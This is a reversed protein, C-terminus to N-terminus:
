RESEDYAPPPAYPPIAPAWAPVAYTRSEIGKTAATVRTYGLVHLVTEEPGGMELPYGSAFTVTPFDAANWTLDKETLTIPADGFIRAPSLMNQAFASPHRPTQAMNFITNRVEWLPEAYRPEEFKGQARALFIGLGREAALGAQLMAADLRRRPEPCLAAALAGLAGARRRQVASGTWIQWTYWDRRLILSTLLANDDSDARVSTSYSQYLLANAATLDLDNGAADFSLRQNTNPEVSYTAEQIFEGVTQEASKRALVDRSALTNELALSVVSPVDFASATGIPRDSRPGWTLARGLPIRFIPLRITLTSETCITTPGAETYGLLPLTPSEITLPYRGLRALAAGAPVLIPARDFRWSAEIATHDDVIKTELLKPTPQWWIAGGRTLSESLVGLAGASVTPFPQTGMPLAVRVWGKYPETAHLTWDGTKGDVQLSPAGDMFGLAIPPQNDKFSVAIWRVGPTPVGEGVSGEKWSLYPAATSTLKM